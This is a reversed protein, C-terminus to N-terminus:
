RILTVTGKQMKVGEEAGAFRYIAYWTFSSSSQARGKYNGDWGAAPDNSEFVLQGIRNYIRIQYQTLRGFVKPRYLDNLQDNGPTFANPFYINRGCDKAEVNATDRSVCNHEDTIEVWYTGPQTTTYSSGTSGDQWLYSSQGVPAQLTLPDTGCLFADKGIDPKPGEFVFIDMTKNSSSCVSGAGAVIKVRGSRKFQLKITSDTTSLVNADAPDVNWQLQLNCGASLNVAYQEAGSQACVSDRGIIDSIQCGPSVGCVKNQAPSISTSVDQPDQVSLTLTTSQPWTFPQVSASGPETTVNADIVPCSTQNGQADTKIIFAERYAAGIVFGPLNTGCIVLSSDTLEFIASPSVFFSIEYKKAWYVGGNTNVKALVLNDPDTVDNSAALATSDTLPLMKVVAENPMAIRIDSVVDGNLTLKMLHSASGVISNLFIYGNKLDIQAFSTSKGNISYKKSWIATGNAPNIKTLIATQNRSADETYAATLLTQDPLVIISKRGVEVNVGAYFLRCWLPQGIASFRTVMLQYGKANALNGYVGCTVFGGDETQCIDRAFSGNSTGDSYYHDWIIQGNADTKVLWSYGGQFAQSFPDGHLGCSIYNDDPLRQIKLFYEDLDGGIMQSWQINGSPDLKTIMGDNFGNGFSTTQGAVILGCDGAVTMANGYDDKDGGFITKFSSHYSDTRATTSQPLKSSAHTVGPHKQIGTISSDNADNAKAFYFTLGTFLICFLLGKGSNPAQNM